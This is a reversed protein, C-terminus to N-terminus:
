LQLYIHEKARCLFTNFLRLDKIGFCLKSSWDSSSFRIM